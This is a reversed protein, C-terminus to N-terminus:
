IVIIITITKDGLGVEFYIQERAGATFEQAGWTPFWQKLHSWMNTTNKSTSTSAGMSIIKDCINCQAKGPSVETFYEWVPVKKLAKAM